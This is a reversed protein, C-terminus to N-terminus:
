QEESKSDKRYTMTGILLHRTFFYTNGEYDRYTIEQVDPEVKRMNTSLLTFNIESFEYIGGDELKAILDKQKQNNRKPIGM